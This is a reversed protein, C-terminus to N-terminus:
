QRVQHPGDEGQAGIARSTRHSSAGALVNGHSTPRPLERRQAARVTVHVSSDEYDIGVIKPHARCYVATDLNSVLLANDRASAQHDAPRSCDFCSRIAMQM